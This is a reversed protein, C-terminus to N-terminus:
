NPQSKNFMKKMRTIKLPILDVMELCISYEEPYTKKVDPHATCYDIIAGYCRLSEEQFGIMANKDPENLTAYLHGLYMYSLIITKEFEAPYKEEKSKLIFSKVFDELYKIGQLSLNKVKSACHLVNKNDNSEKAQSAKIDAMTMCTEGIEFWMERCVKMYYTPNLSNVVSILSDIRRKHLKCQIGEDAQYFSLLHYLKSSDQVIAAHESAHDELTYYGKALNLWEQSKQFLPKADEYTLIFDVTVSQELEKTKEKLSTFELGKLIEPPQPPPDVKDGESSLLREKSGNLLFISYKAWCRYIDALRHRATETKAKLEENEPDASLLEDIKKSYNEMIVTSAALHHRAAVFANQEILFQSLTASNLAWDIVDEINTLQRKLTVHCYKAAKSPNNNKAYVQALYFLTQTHCKEYDNDQNKFSKEGTFLEEFELAPAKIESNYRIYLSESLELYEQAPSYNEQNSAWFGLNNLCTMACLIRSPSMANAVMDYAKKALETGTSIEEVDYAIISSLCCVVALLDLLQNQAIEEQNHQVILNTMDNLIDRAEYKSKYPENEPDTKSAEKMLYNVKLFKEKLEIVISNNSEGM